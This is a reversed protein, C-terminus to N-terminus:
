TEEKAAAKKELEKSPGVTVLEAFGFKILSATLCVLDADEIITIRQDKMDTAVSVVGVNPDVFKSLNQVFYQM